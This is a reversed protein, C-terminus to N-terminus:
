CKASEKISVEADPGNPQVRSRRCSHSSLNSLRQFAQSKNMGTVFERPHFCQSLNEMRAWSQLWPTLVVNPMAAELSVEWFLWLALFAPELFLRSTSLWETIRMVPQSYYGDENM